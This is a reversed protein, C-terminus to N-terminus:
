IARRLRITDMVTAPAFTGNSQQRIFGAKVVNTLAIHVDRDAIGGNAFYGEQVALHCLENFTLSGMETLKRILFDALPPQPPTQRHERREGDRTPALPRRYPEAERAPYRPQETEARPPQHYLESEPRGRYEAQPEAQAEVSPRRQPEEEQPRRYQEPTQHRDAKAAPADHPRADHAPAKGLREYEREMLTTVAGLASELDEIKAQHERNLQELRQEFQAQVANIQEELFSARDQLDGRIDRM